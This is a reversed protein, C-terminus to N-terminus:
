KTGWLFLAVSAFFWLLGGAAALWDRPGAPAPEAVGTWGDFGRLTMASAVREARTMVRPLWMSPIGRVLAWGTRARSAPLRLQVARMLRDTEEVLSGTQVLIQAILASLTRPLHLRRLGEQLRAPDLTSLTTIAILTVACGKIVIRFSDLMAASLGGGASDQGLARVFAAALFLPSGVLVTWLAIGLVLRVRPRLLALWLVLTGGIWVVAAPSAPTILLLGGLLVAGLLLRTSPALSELGPSTRWMAFPTGKM